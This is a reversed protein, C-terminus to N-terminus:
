KSQQHNSCSDSLMVLYTGDYCGMRDRTTHALPSGVFNCSSIQYKQYFIPKVKRKSKIVSQVDNFIPFLSILSDVFHDNNNTFDTKVDKNATMELVQYPLFIRSCLMTQRHTSFYRRYNDSLKIKSQM